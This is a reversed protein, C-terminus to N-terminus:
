NNNLTNEEKKEKVGINKLCFNRGCCLPVARCKEILNGTGNYMECEM